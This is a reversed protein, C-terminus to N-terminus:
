YCLITIHYDFIVLICCRAQLWPDFKKSPEPLLVVAVSNSAMFSAYQFGSGMVGLMVQVRGSDSGLGISVWLRGFCQPRVSLNLSM